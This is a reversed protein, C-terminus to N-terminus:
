ENLLYRDKEYPDTFRFRKRIEESSSSYKKTLMRLSAVAFEKSINWKRETFRDKILWESLNKQVNELLVSDYESGNLFSKEGNKDFCLFQGEKSSYIVELFLHLESLDSLSYIIDGNRENVNGFITRATKEDPIYQNPVATTGIGILDASTQLLNSIGHVLTGFALVDVIAVKKPKEAFMKQIYMEYKKRNEKSKEIVSNRYEYIKEWFDAEGYKKIGDETSINLEDSVRIQFQAELFQKVNIKSGNRLKWIYVEFEEFTNVSSSSIASRSAYFYKVKESIDKFINYFFYGDRSPFIISDYDSMNDYIFRAFLLTMPYFFFSLSKYDPVSLKGKSVNLAFPDDFLQAIARGLMVSDDLSNVADNISAVSSFCLMDYTNLIGFSDIGNERASKVDIDYNDGIHLISKSSYKDKLFRFLEGSSKNKNCECSVYIPYAINVGCHEGLQRLQNSSYYMDSSIIIIKGLGQAYEVFEWVAKRLKVHELELQFERKSWECAKENSGCLKALEIYIEEFTPTIYIENAINEAEKRLEFFSGQESTEANIEQGLIKWIDRAQLVDRKLITDFLDFSIVDHKEIECLLQEKTQDWFSNNIYSAERQLLNGRMDYVQLEKPIDSSIREWVINTSSPIAAIIIVDCMDIAHSLSVIEKGAFINGIENASIVCSFDFGAVSELILKANNGTGYIGIRKERISGFLSNFEEQFTNM